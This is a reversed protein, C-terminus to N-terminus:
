YQQTGAYDYQLSGGYTLNQYGMQSNNNMGTTLYGSNDTATAAPANGSSPQNQASHNGPRNSSASPRPSRQPSDNDGFYLMEQPKPKEPTFNFGGDDSPNRTPPVVGPATSGARRRGTAPPLSDSSRQPAQQRATSDRAPKSPAPRAAFDEKEDEIRQQGSSFCCRFLSPPM